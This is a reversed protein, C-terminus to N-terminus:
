VSRQLRGYRPHAVQKICFVEFLLHDVVVFFYGNVGENRMVVLLCLQENLPKFLADEICEVFFEDLGDGKSDIAVDVVGIFGSQHHTAEQDFLRVQM